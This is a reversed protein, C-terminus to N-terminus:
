VALFSPLKFQFDLEDVPEREVRECHHIRDPRSVAVRDNSGGCRLRDRGSHQSYLADRGPGADVSDRGRGDVIFDAGSGTEITDNGTGAHVDDKALGGILQDDEAGGHIGAFGTLPGAFGPGGAASLSDAGGFGSMVAGHGSAVVDVDPSAEAANINIGSGGDATTGATIQDAMATGWVVPIGNPQVLSLEIEGTGDPEATAGGLLADVTAIAGLSVADAQVEIRDINSPTPQTGCSVEHRFDLGSVAIRDDVRLFLAAEFDHVTLALYNDAPGPAGAEVYACSVTGVKPFPPEKAVAFEATLGFAAIAVGILLARAGSPRLFL